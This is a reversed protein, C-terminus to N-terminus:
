PIRGPGDAEVAARGAASAGGGGLQRPFGPVLDADHHLALARRDEGINGADDMVRVRITFTFRDPDPKGDETLAPGTTGNPMRAALATLDITGLDGTRAMTLGDASEQEVFDSEKPQVGPAAELVYRYSTVRNAAVRGTVTLTAAAPDVLAFWAPSEISAEPPIQGSAVRLVARDANVRGYGFYQDFGAISHFRESQRPILPFTTSYNQPLPPNVDNRADFNIDDATQILVQKVEDASLPFPATSGDDRPYATL